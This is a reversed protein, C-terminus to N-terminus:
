GIVDRIDTMRGFFPDEVKLELFDVDEIKVKNVLALLAEDLAKNETRASEPLLSIYESFYREIGEQAREFCQIDKRSRTEAAYIPEGEENLELMQPFPATLITELVYYNDFIESSDKEEDSYFPEIDLNKSAMFEPELQLFYYGKMHGEFLRSLYMQSTGKAVFDFMAIDSPEIGLKAIYGKYRKRQEKAKEIVAEERTCAIGTIDIGFRKMTAEAPSGAYKMQDVYEIDEYNEMGARIAATRSTLFYFSKTSQDLKDYLKKILYGDRACFLIQRYDDSSARDRMWRVFDSIMPACFLYGIDSSDAVSVPGREVCFPDNFIRAIFMGVKVRDSLSLVHGEIGMGGLADFLDEGRYVRFTDFGRDAAPTIDAYEDDGVHLVRGEFTERVRDFLANTKSTGYECSDFVEHYGDFGFRKLISEIDDKSYYSDSTVVVKKGESVTDTFIKRMSERPVLCSSDLEWEIEAIEKANICVIDKASLVMDYIEEITPAGSKSLEKEAAIRKASFDNIRVGKEKLKIDVLEFIDTYSLVKRTVLTDFLDFSVVDAKEIKQKLISQPMYDVGSFDYSVSVTELLDRGRVDFLAIDNNRCIDGIRKTIAKCSGPRAVVIIKKVHLSIAQEVSIIPYGYMEGDNRFGDLLGVVNIKENWENLFRETETGLGYLAITEETYDFLM